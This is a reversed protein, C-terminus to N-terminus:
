KDIVGKCKVTHKGPSLTERVCDCCAESYSVDQMLYWNVEGSRTVSDETGAKCYM